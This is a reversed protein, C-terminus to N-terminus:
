RLPVPRVEAISGWIYHGALLGAVFALAQALLVFLSWAAVVSRPLPGATEAGSPAVPAVPRPRRARAAVATARRGRGRAPTRREVTFSRPLDAAPETPPVRPVVRNGLRHPTRPRGVDSAM